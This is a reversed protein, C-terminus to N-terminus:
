AFTHHDRTAKGAAEEQQQPSLQVPSPPPASVISGTTTPPPSKAGRLADLESQVRNMQNRLEDLTSQLKRIAEEKATDAQQALLQRAGCLLVLFLLSIARQTKRMQLEGM